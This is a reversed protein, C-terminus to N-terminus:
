LDVRTLNGDGVSTVWASGHSVDVAVPNLGVPVPRGIVRSRRPDIRVV